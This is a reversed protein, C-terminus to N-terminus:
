VEVCDADEAEIDDYIDKDKLPVIALTKGQAALIALVTSIKPYLVGTEIKSIGGQTTGALVGLDQQTLDSNMRVDIM